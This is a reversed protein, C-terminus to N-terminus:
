LRAGVLDVARDGAVLLQSHLPVQDDLLGTRRMTAGARPPRVMPAVDVAGPPSMDFSIRISRVPWVVSASHLAASGAETSDATAANRASSSSPENATTESPSPWAVCTRSRGTSASSTITRRGM